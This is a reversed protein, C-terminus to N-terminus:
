QIHGWKLCQIGMMGKWHLQSMRDQWSLPSCSEFQYCSLPLSTAVQFNGPIKRPTWLQSLETIVLETQATRLHQSLGWQYWLGLSSCSVAVQPTHKALTVLPDSLETHQLTATPNTARLSSDSTLGCIYYMETQWFLSSDTSIQLQRSIESTQCNSTILFMEHETANQKAPNRWKMIRMSLGGERLAFTNTQALNVSYKISTSHGWQIHFHSCSM